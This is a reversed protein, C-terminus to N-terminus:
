MDRVVFIKDPFLEAGEVGDFLNKQKKYHGELTGVWKDEDGDPRCRKHVGAEEIARKELISLRLPEDVKKSLGETAQRQEQVLKGQDELVEFQDQQV